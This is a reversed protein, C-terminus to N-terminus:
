RKCGCDGRRHRAVSGSEAVLGRKELWKSIAKSTIDTQGFAQGITKLDKTDLKSTANQWWCRPGKVPAFELFESLANEM